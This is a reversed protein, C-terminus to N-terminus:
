GGPMNRTSRRSREATGDKLPKGDSRVLHIFDGGASDRPGVRRHVHVGTWTFRMVPMSGSDRCLMFQHFAM